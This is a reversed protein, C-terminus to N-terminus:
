YSICIYNKYQNSKTPCPNYLLGLHFYFILILVQVYGFINQTSLKESHFLIAITCLVLKIIYPQVQFASM